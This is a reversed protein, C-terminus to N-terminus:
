CFFSHVYKTWESLASQILRVVTRVSEEGRSGHLFIGWSSGSPPDAWFNEIRELGLCKVVCVFIKWQEVEELYRGDHSTSSIIRTYDQTHLHKSFICTICICKVSQSRHNPSRVSLRRRRRRARTPSPEGRMDVLCLAYSKLQRPPACKRDFRNKCRGNQFSLIKEFHVM